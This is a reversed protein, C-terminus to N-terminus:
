PRSRGGPAAPELPLAIIFRTGKNPESEVRISGAHEQVIRGTTPLGLGTGRKKRSYYVEFIREIEDAPIGPGTDIVEVIGQGREAAVKMLLEGGQDMAQVANIMLNLLAQKMLKEDVRCIVPQDPLSSRLLVHGDAAQPTFFDVLECVVRRMDVPAASLEYKGAYKLFDDLITKLRDAEGQVGQLRRLWRQHENDHYRVIDEALLRLNVNITSLPNKIEHALGGALRGLETLHDYGKARAALKRASRWTRRTFWLAALAGLPGALGAGLLMWWQAM